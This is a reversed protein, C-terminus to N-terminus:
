ADGATCIRLEDAECHATFPRHFPKGTQDISFKVVLPRNPTIDEQTHEKVVVGKLGHADVAKGVKKPTHYFKVGPTIIEVTDGIQIQRDATDSALDAAESSARAIAARRLLATKNRKAQVDNWSSRPVWAASLTRRRCRRAGSLAM